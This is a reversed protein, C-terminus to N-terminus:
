HTSRWRRAGKQWTAETMQYLTMDPSGRARWLTIHPIPKDTAYRRDPTLCVDCGCENRQETLPAM